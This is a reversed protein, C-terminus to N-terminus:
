NVESWLVVQVANQGLGVVVQDLLLVREHLRLAYLDARVRVGVRAGAGSGLGVGVRVGLGM